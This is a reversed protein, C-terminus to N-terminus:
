TAEIAKFIQYAVQPVIANGLSKVRDVRNPLGNDRGCILSQTSGWVQEGTRGINDWIRERQNQFREGEEEARRDKIFGGPKHGNSSSHAVFWTRYRRHPAGRGSAPLIISTVEYGINELDTQISEFVMGGSWDVIGLVNEGVVFAPQITSIVRLMEPWLHRSDQTGKRKGVTAYPQCPFGGSIIDVAGMYQRGDFEEIKGYRKTLPFNKELVKTCFNDKEVQFVNEWGMWQAALDFGGIGSFLSGHRM